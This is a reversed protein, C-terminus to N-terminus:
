VSELIKSGKSLNEHWWLPQMNSYHMSKAVENPDTLDFSSLPMIHDIHWGYQTWNSWTMGEQFKSEIHARFEQISCGLMDIIKGSRYGEKVAQRFRSRLKLRIALSVDQKAREKFQQYEVGRLRKRRERKRANIIDKNASYRRRASLKNLERYRYANKGKYQKIKEKNKKCYEVIWNHHKEKNKHRYSLLKMAQCKRCTRSYYGRDSRFGFESIEKDQRCSTCIAM